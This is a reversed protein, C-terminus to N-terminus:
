AARQKSNENARPEKEDETAAEAVTVPEENQLQGNSEGSDQSKADAGQVKPKEEAPEDNQAGSQTRDEEVPRQAPKEEETRLASSILSKIRLRAALWRVNSAKGAEELYPALEEDNVMGKAKLLQLLAAGQTDLPELSSLVEDVIEKVIEEDM